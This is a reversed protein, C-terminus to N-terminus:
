LPLDLFKYLILAVPYWIKGVLHVFPVYFALFLLMHSILGVTFTSNRFLATCEKISLCIKKEEDNPLELENGHDVDTDVPDYTISLICILSLVGGIIRFTNRWGVAEVLEELCPGFVIVGVSCGMTMIGTPLAPNKKFYLSNLTLCTNLIVGASIGYLVGYSFYLIRLDNVFSSCVLSASCM